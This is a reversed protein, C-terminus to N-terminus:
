RSREPVWRYSKEKFKVFYERGEEKGGREVPRCGLVAEVDQLGELCLGCRLAGGEQGQEPPM